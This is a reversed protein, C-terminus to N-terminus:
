AKSWHHEPWAKREITMALSMPIEGVVTEAKYIRTAGYASMLIFVLPLVTMEPFDFISNLAISVMVGMAGIAYINALRDRNTTGKVRVEEAAIRVEGDRITLVGASVLEIVRAVTSEGHLLSGIVRSHSVAAEALPKLYMGRTGAVGNMDVSDDSEISRLRHGVEEKAGSSILQSMIIADVETMVSPVNKASRLLVGREGIESDWMSALEVDVDVQHLAPMFRRSFVHYIAAFAMMCVMSMVQSFADGWGLVLSTALLAVLALAVNRLPRYWATIKGVSSLLTAATDESADHPIRGEGPLMYVWEKHRALLGREILSDIAEDAEGADKGMNGFLARIGVVLSPAVSVRPTDSETQAFPRLGSMDGLVLSENETFDFDYTM